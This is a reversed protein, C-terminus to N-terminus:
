CLYHNISKSQYKQVIYANFLQQFNNVQKYSPFYNIDVIYYSNTNHEDIVIDFGFLDIHFISCLQTAIQQFLQLQPPTINSVTDISQACLQQSDFKYIDNSQVHSIDISSRIFCYVDKGLVYVKYIYKHPIYQQYLWKSNNWQNLQNYLYQINDFNAIYYMQHSEVTGCAIDAKIICPWQIHENILTSQDLPHFKPIQINYQVNDMTINHLVNCKSYMIYRSLVNDVYQTDYLILTHQNHLYTQLQKINNLCQTTHYDNHYLVSTQIDSVKYILVDCEYQGLRDVDINHMDIYKYQIHYGAWTNSVNMFQFQHSQHKKNSLYYGVVITHNIM